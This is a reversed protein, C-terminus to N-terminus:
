LLGIMKLIEGLGERILPLVVAMIPQYYEPLNAMIIWLVKYFPSIVVVTLHFVIMWKARTKFSAVTLWAKPMQSWLAIGMLTLGVIQNITAMMPIPYRLGLVYVWFYATVCWSIIFGVVYGSLYAIGLSKWWVYLRDQNMIAPTHATFVMACLFFGVSCQFILCEWWYETEVMIDHYHLSALGITVAGVSIATSLLPWGLLTLSYGPSEGRVM